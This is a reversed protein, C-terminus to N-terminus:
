RTVQKCFDKRQEPPGQYTTLCFGERAVGTQEKIAVTQERTAAVFAAVGDRMDQQHQYFAYATVSMMVLTLMTLITNLSKVNRVNVEQGAVKLAIDAGNKEGNELDSM